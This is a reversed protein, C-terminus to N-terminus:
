PGWLSLSELAIRSPGMSFYKLFVTVLSMFFLFVRLSKRTDRSFRTFPQGSDAQQRVQYCLMGELFRFHKKTAYGKPKALLAISNFYTRTNPLKVQALFCNNNDVNITTILIKIHISCNFIAM